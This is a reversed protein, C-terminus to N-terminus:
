CVKLPWNRRLIICSVQHTLTIKLITRRYNSWETISRYEFKSGDAVYSRCPLIKVPTQWDNQKRPTDAGTCAPIFVGQASVGQAPLCGRPLCVGGGSLYGQASVGQASVGLCVGGPLCGGPLSGRPLCGGPLCGRPLYGGLCFSGVGEPLCWRGGGCVGRGQRGSHRVTRM